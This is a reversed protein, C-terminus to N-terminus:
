SYIDVYVGKSRASYFKVGARDYMKVSEYAKAAQEVRRSRAQRYKRASGDEDVVRSFPTVDIVKGEQPRDDRRRGYTSADVDTDDTSFPNPKPGFINGFLNLINLNIVTTMNDPLGATRFSEPVAFLTNM